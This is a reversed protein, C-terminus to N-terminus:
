YKCSSKAEDKTSLRRGTKAQKDATIKSEQMSPNGVLDAPCLPVFHNPNCKNGDTNSIHVMFYNREKFLAGCDTIPSISSYGILPEAKEMLYVSVVPCGIVNSLTFMHWMNSYTGEMIYNMICLVLPLKLAVTFCKASSLM